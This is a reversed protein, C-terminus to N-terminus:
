QAQKLLLKRMNRILNDRLNRISIRLSSSLLHLYLKMMSFRPNGDRPLNYFIMVSEKFKQQSKSISTNSLKQPSTTLNAAISPMWFRKPIKFLLETDMVM